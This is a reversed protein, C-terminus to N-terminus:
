HDLRYILRLFSVDWADIRLTFTSGNSAGGAPSLIGIGQFFFTLYFRM